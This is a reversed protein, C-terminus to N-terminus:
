KENGHCMIGRYIKLVYMKKKLDFSGMLTGIKFSELARTFIQWIGRTMKPLALSNEKLNQMLKWQWWVYSRQVKGARVNYVKTLPLENFPFNKLNEPVRNFIQWIGWTIKQFCLDTKRWIKCWDEIGDLMVGRPKIIEFMYKPWFCGMLTWIKSVKSHELWPKDFQQTLKSVVLWNWKLNKIM